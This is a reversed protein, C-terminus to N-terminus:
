FYVGFRLIVTNSQMSQDKLVSAFGHEYLLDVNFRGFYAGLGASAGYDLRAPEPHDTIPTGEMSIISCHEEHDLKQFYDYSIFSGVHMDILVWSVLRYYSFQVPRVKMGHTKLSYSVDFNPATCPNAGIIGTADHFGRSALGVEPTYFIHDNMPFVFGLSLDYNFGPTGNNNSFNPYGAGFRVVMPLSKSFFYRGPRAYIDRISERAKENAKDLLLQKTTGWESQAAATVGLCTMVALPLLLKLMRYLKIM